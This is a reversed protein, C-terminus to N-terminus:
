SRDRERDLMARIRGFTELDRRLDPHGIRKDIAIVEEMLGLAERYEGREEHILAMNHAPITALLLNGQREILEKARAYRRYAGDPDGSRRLVFGLTNLTTALGMDDGASEYLGLSEELVQSAEHWNERRQHIGGINALTVAKGAPDGVKEQIRLSAQFAAMARSLDGMRGAVTGINNWTLALGAEDKLDGKLALSAEYHELAKPFDGKGHFV